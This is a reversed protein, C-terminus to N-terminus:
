NLLLKKAWIRLNALNDNSERAAIGTIFHKKLDNNDTIFDWTGIAIEWGLDEDDDSDGFDHKEIEAQLIGIEKTASNYPAFWLTMNRVDGNRIRFGIGVM